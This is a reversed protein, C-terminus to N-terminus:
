LGELWITTTFRGPFTARTPVDGELVM